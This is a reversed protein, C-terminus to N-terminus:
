LKLFYVLLLLAKSSLIFDFQEKKKLEKIIGIFYDVLIDLDINKPDIIGKDVLENIIMDWEIEEKKILSDVVEILKEM